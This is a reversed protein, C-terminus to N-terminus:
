ALYQIVGHLEPLYLLYTWETIFEDKAGDQDPYQINAKLRTNRYPRGEIYALHLAMGYPKDSDPYKEDVLPHLIADFSFGNDMKITDIGDIGYIGNAGIEIGPKQLKLDSFHKRMAKNCLLLRKYQNGDIIKPSFLKYQWDDFADAFDNPDSYTTYNVAGEQTLTYELGQMYGRQLSSNLTQTDLTGKGNFLLAAELGLLHEFRAEEMLRNRETENAYMNEMAVSDSLEYHNRFIQTYNEIVNPIHTAPDVSRDNQGFLTGTRFLKTTAAAFQTGSNDRAIKARTVGDPKFTIANLTLVYDSGSIAKGDVYVSTTCHDPDVSGATMHINFTMYKQISRYDEASVKVTCTSANAGFNALPTVFRSPSRQEFGRIKTTRAPRSSLTNTLYLLPAIGKRDKYIKNGYDIDVREDVIGSKVASDYSIIATSAGMGNDGFAMTRLIKEIQQANIGFM